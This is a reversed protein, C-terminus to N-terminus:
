GMEKKSPSFRFVKELSFHIFVKYVVRNNSVNKVYIELNLLVGATFVVGILLMILYSTTARAV